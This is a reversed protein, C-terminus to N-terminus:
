EQGGALASAVDTRYATLAPIIAAVLGVGLALAPVMWESSRPRFEMATMANGTPLWTEMVLAAGHGFLLRRMQQASVATVRM